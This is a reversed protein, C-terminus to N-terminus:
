TCSFPSPSRQLSGLLTQTSGWHLDFKICKLRFIQCRIAGIKWKGRSKWFYIKGQGKGSWEFKRVKGTKGSRYSGWYSHCMYTFQGVTFSAWLPGMTQGDGRGMMLGVDELNVLRLWDRDCVCHSWVCRDRCGLISAHISAALWGLTSPVCGLNEAWTEPWWFSTVLFKHGLKACWVRSVPLGVLFMADGIEDTWKAPWFAVPGANFHSELWPLGDSNIFM